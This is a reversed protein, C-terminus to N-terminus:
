EKGENGVNAPDVQDVKEDLVASRVVTPSCSGTVSFISRNVLSRMKANEKKERSEKRLLVYAFFGQIIPKIISTYNTSSPIPLNPSIAKKTSSFHQHHTYLCRYTSTHHKTPPHHFVGSSFDHSTHYLRKQALFRHANRQPAPM